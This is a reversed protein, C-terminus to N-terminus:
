LKEEKAIIEKMIESTRAGITNLRLDRGVLVRDVSRQIHRCAQREDALLELVQLIEIGQEGVCQIANLRLSSAYSGASM